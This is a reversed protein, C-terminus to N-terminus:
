DVALQLLLWIHSQERITIPMLVLLLHSTSTAQWQGNAMESRKTKVACAAHVARLRRRGKDKDKTALNRASAM